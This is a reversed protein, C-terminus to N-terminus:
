EEEEGNAKKKQEKSSEKKKKTLAREKKNYNKTRTERSVKTGMKTTMEQKTTTERTTAEMM